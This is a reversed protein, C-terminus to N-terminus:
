APTADILAKIRTTQEIILDLSAQLASDNDGHLASITLDYLAYMVRQGLRDVVELQPMRETIAETLMGSRVLAVWANLASLDLSHGHYVTMSNVSDSYTISNIVSRQAIDPTM